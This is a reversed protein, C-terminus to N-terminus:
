PLSTRGFNASLIVFDAFDVLQDRNLDGQEPTAQDRGYNASLALFDAFSVRGDGDVDGEINLPEGITARKVPAELDIQNDAPTIEVAGRLERDAPLTGRVTYTITAHVPVDVSQPLADQGSADTSNRGFIVYAAGHNPPAGSSTSAGAFADGILLDDVGDGNVDFDSVIVPTPRWSPFPFTLRFGNHGNLEPPQAALDVDPGGFVVHVEKRCCVLRDVEVVRIADDHGDGNLDGFTIDDTGFSKALESISAPNAFGDTGFNASGYFQLERERHEGRVKRWGVFIDDYGDFNVDGLSGVSIGLDTYFPSEFYRKQQAESPRVDNLSFVDTRPGFLKTGQGPDLQGVDIHEPFLQSDKFWTVDTLRNSISDSLEVNQADYPGRNTLKVDFEVKDGSLVSEGIQLDLLVGELPSEINNALQVETDGVVIAVTSISGSSKLKGEVEYLVSRNEGITVTESIAGSGQAAAQPKRGLIIQQSLDDFFDDIGDANLDFLPKANEFGYISLGDFGTSRDHVHGFDIDSPTASGRIVAGNAMPYSIDAFQDGDVNVFSVGGMTVHFDATSVRDLLIETRHSFTPRLAQSPDYHQGYVVQLGGTVHPRGSAGCDCDRGPYSFLLDSLGDGNFDASDVLAREGLAESDGTNPIPVAQPQRDPGLSYVVAGDTHEVAFDVMGDGNFDDVETPRQLPGLSESLHGAISLANLTTQTNPRFVTSGYLLHAPEIYNQYETRWNGHNWRGIVADSFGDNDVDGIFSIESADDIISTMPGPTDSIEILTDWKASSSGYVIALSHGDGPYRAYAIEDFGDGNLDGIPRFDPFPKADVFSDPPVVIPTRIRPGIYSCENDCSELSGLTKLDFGTTAGGFIVVSEVDSVRLLVDDLDDGNFDGIQRGGLAGPFDLSHEGIGTVAGSARGYTAFRKWEPDELEDTLTSRIEVDAAESSFVQVLRTVEEGVEGTETILHVVEVDAALLRRPEFQEFRLKM